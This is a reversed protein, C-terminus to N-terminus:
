ARNKRVQNNALVESYAQTGLEDKQGPIGFLLVAPIGVKIAEEVEKLLNDISLQYIGPMSTVPNKINKGEAVFLPYVLNAIQLSNERVMKRLKENQRIRRPRIAPFM